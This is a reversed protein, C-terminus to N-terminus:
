GRFKILTIVSPNRHIIVRDVLERMMAIGRGYPLIEHPKAIRKPIGPGPDMIKFVLRRPDLIMRIQIRRSGWAPDAIRIKRKEHYISPSSLDPAKESQKLELCGYDVANILAEALAIEVEAQGKADLIGCCSLFQRIQHALEDPHAEAATYALAIDVASLYNLLKPWDSAPQDALGPDPKM